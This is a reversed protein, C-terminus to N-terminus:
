PTVLQGLCAEAAEIDPRCYLVGIKVRQVVMALTDCMHNYLDSDSSIVTCGPILTVFADIDKCLVFRNESAQYLRVMGQVPFSLNKYCPTKGSWPTGYAVVRNDRVRIVPNDDNLLHCGAYQKMWLAAHTSKGTGSKGWFLYSKGNMYVSSAHVSVAQGALIAQSFAIRLFSTLVGGALRDDWCLYISIHRFSKDALMYHCPSDESLRINVQYGDPRTFFRVYGMDNVDDELVTATGSDRFESASHVEAKFILDAGDAERSLFPEFAPLLAKINKEAPLCVAFVFDAVCFRYEKMM